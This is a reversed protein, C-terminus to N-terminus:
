RLNGEGQIDPSCEISIYPRAVEAENIVSDPLVKGLAGETVAKNRRRGM